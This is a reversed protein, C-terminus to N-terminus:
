RSQNLSQEYTHKHSHPQKEHVTLLFAQSHSRNTIHIEWPKLMRRRM